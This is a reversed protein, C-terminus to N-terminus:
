LAHLNARETVMLHCVVRPHRRALGDIVATVFGAAYPTSAGIWVEGATPDALFELDQVTMRLEDFVTVARKL